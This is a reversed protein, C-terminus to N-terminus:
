SYFKHSFQWLTKHAIESVSPSQLIGQTDNRSLEEMIMILSELIMSSELTVSIQKFAISGM